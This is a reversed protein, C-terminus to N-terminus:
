RFFVDFVDGGRLLPVILCVLKSDVVLLNRGDSFDDSNQLISLFIRGKGTFESTESQPVTSQNFM